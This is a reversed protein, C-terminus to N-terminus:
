NLFVIQVGVRWEKILGKPFLASLFVHIKSISKGFTNLNISCIKTIQISCVSHWM